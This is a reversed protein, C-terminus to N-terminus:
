KQHRSATPRLLSEGPPAAAELPEVLDAPSADGILARLNEGDAGLVRQLTTLDDGLCFHQVGLELYYTAEKPNSIEARPPVGARLCMEIVQREVARVEPSGVDGPRGISMAYDAPGWQVMDLGPVQLIEDLAEVAPAKEVMVVVVVDSLAKVYAPTGAYNPMANRRAAVGYFGGGEPADARVSQVCSAVDAASRCDAFLVSDFGAGVSRQAVYRRGAFDVKIMTGLGHLEAARCFNELSFLDYPAYEGLFEVYDFTGIQGIAEVVTPSCLFLHTGVTAKGSALLTRLRNVRM